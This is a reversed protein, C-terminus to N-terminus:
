REIGGGSNEHDFDRRIKIMQSFGGQNYRSDYGKKDPEHTDELSASKGIKLRIKKLRWTMSEKDHGGLQNISGIEDIENSREDWVDKIEPEFEKTEKPGKIGDELGGVERDLNRQQFGEPRIANDKEDLSLTARYAQTKNTKFVTTEAETYELVQQNIPESIKKKKKLFFAGIVVALIVGIALFLANM